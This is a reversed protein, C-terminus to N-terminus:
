RRGNDTTTDGTGWDVLNTGALVLPVATAWDPLGTEQWNSALKLVTSSSGAPGPNVTLRGILFATSAGSKCERSM